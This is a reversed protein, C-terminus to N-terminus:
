FNLSNKLKLKLFMLTFILSIKLLGVEWKRRSYFEFIESEM